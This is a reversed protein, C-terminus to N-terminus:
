KFLFKCRLSRTWTSLYCLNSESEKESIKWWTEEGDETRTQLSCSAASLTNPWKEGGPELTFRSPWFIEAQNVGSCTRCWPTHDLGCLRQLHLSRVQFGVVSFCLSIKPCWILILFVTFFFFFPMTSLLMWIAHWKINEEPKISEVSFQPFYCFCCVNSMWWFGSNIAEFAGKSWLCSVFKIVEHHVHGIEVLM